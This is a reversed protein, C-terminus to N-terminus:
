ILLQYKEYNDIYKKIREIGIENSVNNVTQLSFQSVMNNVTIILADYSCDNAKVLYSKIHCRYCYRGGFQTFQGIGDYDMNRACLGCIVFLKEIKTDM